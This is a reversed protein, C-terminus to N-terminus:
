LFHLLLCLLLELRLLYLLNQFRVRLEPYLIFNITQVVLPIFGFWSKFSRNRLTSEKIFKFPFLKILDGVKFRYSCRSLLISKSFSKHWCCIIICKCRKKILSQLRDILSNCRGEWQLLRCWLKSKIAALIALWWLLVSLIEHIRSKFNKLSLCCSIM